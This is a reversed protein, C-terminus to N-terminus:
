SGLTCGGCNCELLKVSVGANGCVQYSYINHPVIHSGWSWPSAGFKVGMGMFILLPSEDRAVRDKEWSSPYPFPFNM